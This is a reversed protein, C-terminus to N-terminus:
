SVPSNEHVLPNMDPNVICVHSMRPQRHENVPSVASIQGHSGYLSNRKHFREVEATVLRSADVFM